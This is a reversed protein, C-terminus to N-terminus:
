GKGIAEEKGLAYRREGQSCGGAFIEGGRSLQGLRIPGQLLLLQIYQMSQFLALPLAQAVIEAALATSAQWAWILDRNGIEKPQAVQGQAM